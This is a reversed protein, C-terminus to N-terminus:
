KKSETKKNKQQDTATSLQKILAKTSRYEEIRERLAKKASVYSECASELNSISTFSRTKFNAHATKLEKLSREYRGNAIPLYLTKYMNVREVLSEKYKREFDEAAKKDDFTRKGVRYLIEM